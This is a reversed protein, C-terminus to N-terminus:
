PMPNIQKGEIAMNIASSFSFFVKSTSVSEETVEISNRTLLINNGKESEINASNIEKIDNLILIFYKGSNKIISNIHIILTIIIPAVIPISQSLKVFELIIEMITKINIIAIGLKELALRINLM